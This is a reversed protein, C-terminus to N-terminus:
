RSVSGVEAGPQKKAKANSGGEILMKLIAGASDAVRKVLAYPVRLALEATHFVVRVIAALILAPIILVKKM